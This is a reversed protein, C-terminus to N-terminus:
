TQSKAKKNSLRNKQSKQSYTQSKKLSFLNAVRCHV